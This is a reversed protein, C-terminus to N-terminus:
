NRSLLANLSRRRAAETEDDWGDAGHRGKGTALSTRARRHHPASSKKKGSAGTTTHRRANASKAAQRITSARGTVPEPKPAAEEASSAADEEEKAAKAAAEAKARAKARKAEEGDSDAPAELGDQARAADIHENFSDIWDLLTENSPAQLYVDRGAQLTRRVM